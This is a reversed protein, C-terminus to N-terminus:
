FRNKYKSSDKIHKEFIDTIEALFYLHNIPNWLGQSQNFLNQCYDEFNGGYPYHKSILQRSQIEWDVAYNAIVISDLNPNNYKIIFCLQIYQKPACIM